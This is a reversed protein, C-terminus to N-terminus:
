VITVLSFLGGTVLQSRVVGIFEPVSGLVIGPVRTGVMPVPVFIGIRALAMATPDFHVVRAVVVGVNEVARDDLTTVPAMAEKTRGDAGRGFKTYPRPPVVGYWWTLEHGTSSVVVGGCGGGAFLFQTGSVAGHRFVVHAGAFTELVDDVAEPGGRVVGGSVEDGFGDGGAVYTGLSPTRIWGITQVFPGVVPPQEFRGALGTRFEISGFWGGPVDQFTGTVAGVGSSVAADTIELPGFGAIEDRFETGDTIVVVSPSREWGVVVGTGQFEKAKVGDHDGIGGDVRREGVVVFFTEAVTVQDAARTRAVVVGGGPRPIVM